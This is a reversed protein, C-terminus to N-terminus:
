MFLGSRKIRAELPWRMPRFFVRREEQDIWAFADRLKSPPLTKFRENLEMSM